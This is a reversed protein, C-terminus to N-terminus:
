SAFTTMKKPNVFRFRFFIYLMFDPFVFSLISEQINFRIIM